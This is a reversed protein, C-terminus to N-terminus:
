EILLCSTYRFMTWTHAYMKVGKLLIGQRLRERKRERDRRDREGNRVVTDTKGVPCFVARGKKKKGDLFQLPVFRNGIIKRCM